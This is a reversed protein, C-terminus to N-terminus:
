RCNSILRDGNLDRDSLPVSLRAGNSTYREIPCWHFILVCWRKHKLCLSSLSLSISVLACYSLKVEFSWHKMTSSSRIITFVDQQSRDRFLFRFFLRVFIPLFDDTCYLSTVRLVLWSVDFCRWSRTAHQTTVRTDSHKEQIMSYWLIKTAIICVTSPGVWSKVSKNTMYPLANRWRDPTRPWTKFFPLIWFHKHKKALLVRIKEKQNM